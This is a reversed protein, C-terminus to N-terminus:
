KWTDPGGTQRDIQIRADSLNSFPGIRNGQLLIYYQGCLNVIEIGKYNEVSNM